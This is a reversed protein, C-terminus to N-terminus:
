ISAYPYDPPLKQEKRIVYFKGSLLDFRADGVIYNEDNIFEQFSNYSFIFDDAGYYRHEGGAAFAEKMLRKERATIYKKRNPKNKKM